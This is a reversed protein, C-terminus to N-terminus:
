RTPYYPMPMPMMMPMMPAQQPQGGVLGSALSSAMNGGVTMAGYALMPNEKAWSSMNGLHKNWDIANADAPNTPRTVSSDTVAAAPAPAPTTASAAGADLASARPPKSYRAANRQADMAAQNPDILRQGRSGPVPARMSKIAGLAKPLAIGTAAGAAGIGLSTGLDNGAAASGIAGVGFGLAGRALDSDYGGRILKNAAGSFFNSWGPAALKERLRARSIKEFDSSKLIADALNM